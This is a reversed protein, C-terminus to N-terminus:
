TTDGASCSQVTRLVTGRSDLWALGCPTKIALADNVIWLNDRVRVRQPGGGVYHVTVYAVGDPVLGFGPSGPAYLLADVTGPATGCTPSEQQDFVIVLCLARHAYQSRLQPLLGRESQRRAKTVCGPPALPSALLHWAPVLYVRGYTARALFRVGDTVIGSEPLPRLWGLALRDVRRQRHRLVAYEAALTPPTRGAISTGPRPYTRCDSARASPSGAPGAAALSGAPVAIAVVVALALASAAAARGGRSM